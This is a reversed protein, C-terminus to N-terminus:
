LGSTPPVLGVFRVTGINGNKEIRDGVAFNCM